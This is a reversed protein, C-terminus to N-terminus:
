VIRIKKESTTKAKKPLTILLQGNKLFAGIADKNIDKPIYFAFVKSDNPSKANLNLVNDVVGIDIEEKEFGPIDITLSYSDGNDKVKRTYTIANEFGDAIAKDVADFVDFLNRIM